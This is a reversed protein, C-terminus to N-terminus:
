NGGGGPGQVPDPAADRDALLWLVLLATGTVIAADAVNFVPWRHLPWFELDVFDVVYGWRLRDILNGVAGGLQLGLALRASGARGPLRPLWYLIAAIVVVAVVIFFLTQNQLLGFAAGRNQVYTWQVVGPLVPVTGWPAIRALVWAKTAQDAALVLLATGVPLM